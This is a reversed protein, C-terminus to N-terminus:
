ETVKPTASLNKQGKKKAEDQLLLPEPRRVLICFDGTYKINLPIKLQKM